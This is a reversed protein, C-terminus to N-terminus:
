SGGERRLVSMHLEPKGFRIYQNGQSVGLMDVELDQEINSRKVFTYLEKM